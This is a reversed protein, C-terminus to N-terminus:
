PVRRSGPEGTSTRASRSTASPGSRSAPAGSRSTAAVAAVPAPVRVAKKPPSSRSTGTRVRAESAPPASPGSSTSSYSVVTTTGGPHVAASSSAVPASTRRAAVRRRGAGRAWAPGIAARSTPFASSVAASSIAVVIKRVAWEATTRSAISKEAASQAGVPSITACASVIGSWSPEIGFAILVSRARKPPASAGPSTYTTLSGNSPALWVGSRKTACGDNAPSVSIPNATATAWWPSTPPRTGPDHAQSLM